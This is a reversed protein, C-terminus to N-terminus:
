IVVVYRYIKLGVKINDEGKYGSRGLLTRGESPRVLIMYANRMNGMCKVHRTLRKRRQKRAV